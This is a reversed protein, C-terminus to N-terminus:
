PFCIASAVHFFVMLHFFIVFYFLFIINEPFFFGSRKYGCKFLLFVMCVLHSYTKFRTKLRKATSFSQNPTSFKTPNVLLLEFFMLLKKRKPSSFEMGFYLLKRKPFIYSIKEPHNKKNKPSPASFHLYKKLPMYKELSYSSKLKIMPLLPFLSIENKGRDVKSFYNLNSLKLSMSIVFSVIIFSNIADDLKALYNNIGGTSSPHSEKKYFNSRKASCRKHSKRSHM